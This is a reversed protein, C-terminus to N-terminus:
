SVTVYSESLSLLQLVERVVQYYHAPIPRNKDATTVFSARLQM